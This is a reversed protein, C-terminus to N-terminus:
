LFKNIGLECWDLNDDVVKQLLLDNKLLSKRNVEDHWLHYQIASFKLTKRNIGKNFLRVVFESDERGWGKFENNFGNVDICDQRFFSMNCTRISKLYNRRNSFLKSLLNSHIANFRNKIGYSLFHFAIEKTKIIKETKNPSLLVRSGQIFYGHQVNIVHDHIFESHLIMDGDILVVYESSAISIARNRSESVRFGLDEQYSHIIKLKTSKRFEDILSKTTDESGDDAIIVESPQISQKRISELVLLLAEPRNYTTVILSVRM